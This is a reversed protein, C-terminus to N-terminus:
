AIAAPPEAVDLRENACRIRFPGPLRNMVVGARVARSSNAVPLVLRPEADGSWPDISASGVVATSATAVSWVAAVAAAGSL